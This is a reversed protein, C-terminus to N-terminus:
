EGATGQYQLALLETWTQCTIAAVANYNPTGSYVDGIAKPSFNSTMQSDDTFINGSYPKPVAQKFKFQITWKAANFAFTEAGVSFQNQVHYNADSDIPEVEFDLLTQTLM